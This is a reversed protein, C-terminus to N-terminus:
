AGRERGMRYRAVDALFLLMAAPLFLWDLPHFLRRTGPQRATVTDPRADVAGGTASTLAALLPRNPGTAEFEDQAQDGPAPVTLFQMPQTVARGGRRRTLTIPYQGAPLPPLIARFQRPGTPMLTLDLAQDPTFLRALVAGADTVDDFATVTLVTREENRQVEFAVDGAAHDAATWRVLQSWFKDFGDWATWAAADRGPSATFVAVRGLGYQWAALLPHKQKGEPVYALLDAGPRLRTYAYGELEPLAGEAIGQLPQSSGELRAAFREPGRPLRGVARSTDRLLLEPLQRANEVHHFQGGTRAALERLLNLNITDDGIRITTVSIGDAALAAILAEHAAAPRNTDGDTLLMIHKTGLRAAALQRRASELADYFDTGGGPQLRPIDRLLPARNDNV